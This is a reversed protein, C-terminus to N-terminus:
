EYWNNNNPNLDKGNRAAVGRLYASLRAFNYITSCYFLKSEDFKIVLEELQRLLIKIFPIKMFIRLFVNNEIKYYITNKATCENINLFNKMGDRGLHFYKKLYNSLSPIGEDHYITAKTQKLKFGKKKVRYAFEFDEFGYGIFDENFLGLHLLEQTKILGMNMAVFYKPELILNADIQKKSFHHSSRFRLYNSFKLLHVPYEVVGSLITKEDIKEFDDLFSKIFEKQPVCDDDILILYKYIATRIGFNRKAALINKDINLYKIKKLNNQKIFNNVILQSNDSSYSDCILIEYYNWDDIQNKLRLATTVSMPLTVNAININNPINLVNWNNILNIEKQAYVM